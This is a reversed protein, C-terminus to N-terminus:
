RLTVWAIATLLVSDFALFLTTLPNRKACEALRDVMDVLKGKWEKRRSKKCAGPGDHEVGRWRYAMRPTSRVRHAKADRFLIRDTWRWPSYQLPYIKEKHRDITGGLSRGRMYSRGLLRLFQAM